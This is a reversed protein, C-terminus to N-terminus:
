RPFVVVTWQGDDGRALRHDVAALRAPEIPADSECVVVADMVEAERPAEHDLAVHLEVVFRGDVRARQRLLLQGRGAASRGIPLAEPTIHRTNQETAVVADAPGSYPEAAAAFWKQQSACEVGAEPSFRIIQRHANVSEGPAFDGAEARLMGRHAGDVADRWHLDALALWYAAEAPAGVPLSATGCRASPCAAIPDLAPASSWPPAYDARAEAGLVFARPGELAVLVEYLRPDDGDIVSARDPAPALARLSPSPLPVGLAVPSLEADRDLTLGVGARPTTPLADPALSPIAGGCGGLTTVALVGVLGVCALPRLPPRM